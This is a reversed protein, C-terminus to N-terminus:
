FIQILMEDLFAECFVRLDTLLSMFLHKFDNPLYLDFGHTVSVNMVVALILSLFLYQCHYLSM